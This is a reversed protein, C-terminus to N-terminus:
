YGIISDAPTELVFKIVEKFTYDNYYLTHEPPLSLNVGVANDWHMGDDEGGVEEEGAVWGTV